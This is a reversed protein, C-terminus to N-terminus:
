HHQKDRSDWECLFCPYKTYGGQQGLLMSIIKLDGCLMWGHQEYAINTLLKELNEFCEKLHVSHAVPLLAYTNGNHLLVAKLSRKSSDIFLRWENSDYEIDYMKTLGPIDKCFVLDEDEAFFPLFDKERHRYWSFSTGPALMSREKLRSGLLEAADKPLNLDRTLDNLHSQSFLQCADSDGHFEPDSQHVDEEEIDCDSNEIQLAPVPPQVMKSDGFIAPTVPSVNPYNIDRKNKSNYGTIDCCCFYCDKVHDNPERWLVPSVIKFSNKQGKSWKRLELLCTTCIKHPAWTKDQNSLVLGFYSKYINKVFDTISNRQKIVM